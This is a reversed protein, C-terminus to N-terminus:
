SSKAPSGGQRRSLDLVYSQMPALTPFPVYGRIWGDAGIPLPAAAAGGFISLPTYRRAPLASAQSTLTV